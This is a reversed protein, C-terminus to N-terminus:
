YDRFHKIIGGHDDRDCSCNCYNNDYDQTIIVTETQKPTSDAEEENYPSLETIDYGFKNKLEEKMKIFM